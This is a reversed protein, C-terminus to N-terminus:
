GQARFWEVTRGVGEALPTVRAGFAGEFASADMVFPRSFQHFVEKAERALPNFLGGLALMWYPMARMRAPRGVAAAVAAIFARGTVPPGSPLHWVRGFAEEREGLTALAWAADGVYTMTHPQDLSGLWTATKGALVARFVFDRTVSNSNPGYLDSARGIAVPVGGDAHAAMLAEELRIRLRGKPGTARRPTAETMPGDPPGYMYLNDMFVYRAGASRAGALSGDILRPLTDAWEPYPVNTWNYVVAAGDCARRVADADTADAAVVEVGAPYTGRGGRSVARVRCGRAALERVLALGGGSAGLVVHVGGDGM